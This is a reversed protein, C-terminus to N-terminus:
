RTATRTSPSPARWAPSTRPPRSARRAARPRLSGARPQMADVALKAADYGLAALADPAQGYAARTPPWSSSRARRPDEGSYHNSFYSGEIASGGLEFLKPSDWGDGGLLPVRLGLERAQRAILGVDTYYGPVYLADPKQAKLATLQARFDTDGKSYTETGM